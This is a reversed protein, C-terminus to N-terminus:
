LTKISAMVTRSIAELDIYNLSEIWPASFSNLSQWKETAPPLFRIGCSHLRMPPEDVSLTQRQGPQGGRLYMPDNVVPFGLHALHARIQNTRGTVPTCLVVSRGANEDRALVQFNTTAAIGCECVNRRGAPGSPQRDIPRECSFKDQPPAGEIEALYRKEIRHGLFQEHFHRASRRNMALLVIGSTNADLRHVIRPFRPQYAQKLIEVLTNRNFQGSPHM